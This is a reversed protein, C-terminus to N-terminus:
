RGTTGRSARGAGAPKPSGLLMSRDRSSTHPSVARSSEPTRAFASYTQHRRADRYALSGDAPVASGDGFILRREQGVDNTNFSMNPDGYATRAKDLVHGWYPDARDIFSNAGPPAWGAGGARLGGPDPGWHTQEDFKRTETM